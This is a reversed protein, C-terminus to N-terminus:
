SLVEVPPWSRARVASVAVSYAPRGFGLPLTWPRLAVTLMGVSFLALYPAEAAVRHVIPFQILALAGVLMLSPFAIASWRARTFLGTIILSAYFLWEYRLSWIVSILIHTQPDGNIPPGM